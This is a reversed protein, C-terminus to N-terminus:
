IWKKPGRLVVLCWFGGAKDPMAFPVDLEEVCVIKFKRGIIKTPRKNVKQIRIQICFRFGSGHIRQIRIL